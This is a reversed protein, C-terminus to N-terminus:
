ASEFCGNMAEFCEQMAKPGTPHLKEYFGPLKFIPLYNNWFEISANFILWSQRAQTGLRVAQIIHEVFIEKWKAFKEKEDATFEREDQDDDLTVLEGHGIEIEDDLLFEVHVRALNIQAESQAIVLDLDKQADWADKICLTGSQFSIEVLNEELALKSIECAILVREKRERVLKLHFTREQEKIEEEVLNDEERVEFEPEEYELM